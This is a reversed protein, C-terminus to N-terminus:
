VTEPVSGHTKRATFVVKLNSVSLTFCDKLGSFFGAEAREHALDVDFQRLITSTVLRVEMLGLAKGVCAYRGTGFPVYISGDKVLEPRTTWREPIFSNPFAFFREDRYQAYSPITVITEGPIFKDGIMLGEPPTMRQVGSPVPPLLRLAENICAQLYKMKSLKSQDLDTGGPFCADIEQQLKVCEAKNKALQFFLSSLTTATTDSGAIAILQMDAQLNLRDQRTPKELAEYDALLWSFVDPVDPRNKQRHSVQKILWDQVAADERNLIPMARFLPFMWILHNFIGIMILHKHILKMFRHAQGTRLMDFNEGFAMDGMVDFSYFNFWKSAEFPIGQNEEVNRLLLRTYKTVRPEYDRLAKTSFAKDWTKRRRTHDDRNRTMHVSIAPQEINYWPGKGCPSSNSHIAAVAKADIISLESPGLPVDDLPLPAAILVVALVVSLGAFRRIIQMTHLDWEGRNFFFIHLMVGLLFATALLPSASTTWQRWESATLFM